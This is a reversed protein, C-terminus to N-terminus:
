FRFSAGASFSFFWAPRIPQNVYLIKEVFNKTCLYNVGLDGHIGIRWFQFGMRLNGDISVALHRPNNWVYGLSPGLNFEFRTPMIYLFLSLLFEQFTEHELYIHTTNSRVAFLCPIKLYPSNNKLDTILSVGPRVGFWHTLFYGGYVSTILGESLNSNLATTTYTGRELLVDYFYLKNDNDIYPETEEETQAHVLIGLCMFLAFLVTKIRENGRKQMM